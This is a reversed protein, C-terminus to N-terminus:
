DVRAVVQERNRNLLTQYIKDGLGLDIFLQKMIAEPFHDANYDPLWGNHMMTLLMSKAEEPRQRFLLWRAYHIYQPVHGQAFNNDLQKALDSVLHANGRRAQLQVFYMLKNRNKDTVIIEGQTERNLINHVLEPRLRLFANYATEDDGIQYLVSLYAGAYRASDQHMDM